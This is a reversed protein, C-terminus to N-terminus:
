TYRISILMSENVKHIFSTFFEQFYASLSKKPNRPYNEACRRFVYRCSTKWSRFWFLDGTCQICHLVEQTPFDPGAWLAFFVTQIKGGSKGEDTKMPMANYHGGPPYHKGTIIGATHPCHRRFSEIRFYWSGSLAKSRPTTGSISWPVAEYDAWVCFFLAEIRQEGKPLFGKYSPYFASKGGGRLGRENLVVKPSALPSCPSLILITSFTFDKPDSPSFFTRELFLKWLM